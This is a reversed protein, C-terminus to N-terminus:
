SYRIKPNLLAYVLDITINTVIILSSYTIIIGQILPFDRTQFARLILDGIGPWSFIKEILITGGILFGFQVGVITITPILANKLARIFIIYRESLGKMRDTFIYDEKIVTILDSRLTRLVVAILPLALSLAPLLIHVICSHFARFDRKILSDIIVFGTIERVVIESDIRGSVPLIKLFAGFAIIFLLGWMFNPISFGVFSVSNSLYEAITGKKSVSIVAFLIGILLSLIVSAFVLELTAPLRSIIVPMVEQQFWYSSGFDGQFIDSLWSLYQLYIPGTLGFQERIANINEPTAGVPALMLAPDGPIM